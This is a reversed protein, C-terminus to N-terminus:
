YSNDFDLPQRIPGGSHPSPSWEAIGTVDRKVAGRVGRSERAADAFEEQARIQNPHDRAPKTCWYPTDQRNVFEFVEGWPFPLARNVIRSLEPDTPLDQKFRDLDEESSEDLSELCELEREVENLSAM